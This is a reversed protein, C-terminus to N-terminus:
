DPAITFELRGENLIYLTLGSGAVNYSTAGSLATVFQTGLSDEPCMALTSAGPVITIRTDDTTYTAAVSNCDAQIAATGDENFTISYRAQDAEPVVGQFAPVTETISVLQWTRGTLEGRFLSCGAVVGAISVLAALVVLVAAGRRPPRSTPQRTVRRRRPPQSADAARTVVTSGPVMDRLSGAPM